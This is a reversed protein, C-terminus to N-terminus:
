LLKALLLKARGGGGSEGSARESAREDARGGAQRSRLLNRAPLANRSNRWPLGVTQRLSRAAADGSQLGCPSSARKSPASRTFKNKRKRKSYNGANFSGPRVPTGASKNSQVGHARGAPQRTPPRPPTPRRCPLVLELELALLPWARAMPASGLRRARRM